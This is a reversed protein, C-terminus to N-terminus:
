FLGALYWVLFGISALWALPIVVYLFVKLRDFRYHKPSAFLTLRVPAPRNM